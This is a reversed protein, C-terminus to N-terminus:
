KNDSSKRKARVNHIVEDINYTVRTLETLKNKIADKRGFAEVSEDVLLGDKKGILADLDVKHDSDTNKKLYEQLYFTSAYPSHSVYIRAGWQEGITNIRNQKKHEVIKQKKAM